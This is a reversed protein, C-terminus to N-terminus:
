FLSCVLMIVAIFMLTSGVILDAINGRVFDKMLGQYHGIKIDDFVGIKNTASSVGIYVTQGSNEATIPFLVSNLNYNFKRQTEYVQVGDMDVVIHRGYIKDILVVLSNDTLEPLQIKIWQAMEANPKLPIKEGAKVDIWGDLAELQEISMQPDLRDTWAIQWRDIKIVDSGSDSSSNFLFVCFAALLLVFFVAVGKIWSKM